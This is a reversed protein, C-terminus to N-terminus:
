AALKYTTVGDARERDVKIGMGGDKKAKVVHSIRARLTHPLWGTAQCLAEVTAGKGKLMTLMTQTKDAGSPGKPKAAKASKAKSKAMDAEATRIPAAKPPNNKWGDAREEASFKITAPIDLPDAAKGNGNAASEDGQKFTFGDPTEFVADPDVGASRAARRANSRETYFRTEM